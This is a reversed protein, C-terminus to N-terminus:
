GNVICKFYYYVKEDETRKADEDYYWDEAARIYKDIVEDTMEEGIIDGLDSYLMNMIIYAPLVPMDLKDKLKEIDDLSWKAKPRMSNVWAIAKEQNLTRGEAIEYLDDAIKCYTDNDIRQIYDITNVLVNELEKMKNTDSSMVIKDIYKQVM